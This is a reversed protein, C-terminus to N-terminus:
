IESKYELNLMNRFGLVFSFDAHCGATAVAPEDCREESNWDRALDESHRAAKTGRRQQM